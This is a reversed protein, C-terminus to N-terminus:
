ANEYFHMEEIYQFVDKSLYHRVDKKDALAKRIFSSSIKMVPADYFFVSSHNKLESPANGEIRPYVYIQHSKLIEDHNKWKHFHELNDEGMILVFQHDPYKEKLYTLTDITYNPQPLNFEIDSAKFRIDDEFAIRVLQLRHYDDLM